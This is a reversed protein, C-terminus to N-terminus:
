AVASIDELYLNKNEGNEAVILEVLVRASGDVLLVCEVVSLLGTDNRKFNKVTVSEMTGGAPSHQTCHNFDAEIATAIDRNFALAYGFTNALGQFDRVIFLRCAEEGLKSLFPEGLQNDHLKM